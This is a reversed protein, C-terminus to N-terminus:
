VYCSSSTVGIIVLQQPDCLHSHNAATSSSTRQAKALRRAICQSGDHGGLLLVLLGVQMDLVGLLVELMELIDVDVVFREIGAGHLSRCLLVADAEYLAELRVFFGCHPRETLACATPSQSDCVSLTWHDGHGHDHFSVVDGEQSGEVAIRHEPPLVAFPEVVVAFVLDRRGPLLSEVTQRSNGIDNTSQHVSPGSRAPTM